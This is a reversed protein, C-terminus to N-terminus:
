MTFCLFVLKLIRTIHVHRVFKINQTCVCAVVLEEYFPFSTEHMDQGAFPSSFEFDDLDFLHQM